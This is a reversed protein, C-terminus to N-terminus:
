KKNILNLNLCFLIFRLRFLIFNIQICFILFVYLLLFLYFLNIYNNIKISNYIVYNNIISINNFLNLTLLYEKFKNYNELNDFFIYFHLGSFLTKKYKKNEFINAKFNFVISKAIFKSSKLSYYINFPLENLAFIIKFNYRKLSNYLVLYNYNKKLLSKTVLQM